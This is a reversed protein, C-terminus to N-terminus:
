FSGDEFFDEDVDYLTYERRKRVAVGYALMLSTLKKGDILVIKGNQYKEASAKAQPNFGSTTVFVGLSAGQVHLSGIFNRIEVDGVSHSDAYRKAQIYVNTLGLADQEIIGDIGGDGRKGVHRKKGHKGGYGMAWLLELVAKEFFEPEGEQLRRLLNTEVEANCKGMLAAMTEIPDPPASDTVSPEAVEGLLADCSHDKPMRQRERVEREYDAWVPWEGMQKDDYRVLKRAEVVRGNETIQYFGRKPRLLLGAAVLRSCAWNVRNHWLFQKGSPILINRARESLGVMAAAQERIQATSRVSGDALISLVIPRFEENLPIRDTM